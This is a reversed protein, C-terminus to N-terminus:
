EMGPSNLKLCAKCQLGFSGEEWQHWGDARTSRVRKVQAARRTWREQGDRDFLPLVAAVLKAFNKIRVTATDIAMAFDESIAAHM